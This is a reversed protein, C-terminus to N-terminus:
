RDEHLCNAPFTLTHRDQACVVLHSASSPNRFIVYLCPVFRQFGYISVAGSFQVTKEFWKQVVFPQIEIRQSNFDETIAVRSTLCDRVTHMRECVPETNRRFRPPPRYVIGSRYVPSRNPRLCHFQRPIKYVNCALRFAVRCCHPLPRSCRRIRLKRRLSSIKCRLFVFRRRPCRQKNDIQLNVQM